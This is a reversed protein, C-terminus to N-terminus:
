LTAMVDPIKSPSITTSEASSMELIVHEGMAKDILGKFVTPQVLEVSGASSVMVISELEPIAKLMKPMLDTLNYWIARSCTVLTQLQAPKQLSPRIVITKLAIASAERLVATTIHL